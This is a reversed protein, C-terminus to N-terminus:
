MAISDVAMDSPDPLDAHAGHTGVKFYHDMPVHSVFLASFEARSSVGFLRYVAKIYSHVTHPSLYMQRAIQKETYGQLLLRATQSERPSMPSSLYCDTALRSKRVMRQIEILMLRCLRRLRLGGTRGHLRDPVEFLICRLNRSNLMYTLLVVQKEAVKLVELRVHANHYWVDSYEELMLNVWKIVDTAHFSPHDVSRSWRQEFQDCMQILPHSGVALAFQNFTHQDCYVRKENIVGCWICGLDFYKGLGEILIQRWLSEDFGNIQVRHLLQYLHRMKRLQLSHSYKM